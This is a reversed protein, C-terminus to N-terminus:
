RSYKSRLYDIYLLVQVIQLIEAGDCAPYGLLEPFYPLLVIDGLVTILDKGIEDDFELISVEFHRELDYLFRWFVAVEEILFGELVVKWIFLLESLYFM